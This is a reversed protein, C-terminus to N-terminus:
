RGIFFFVMDLLVLELLPLLLLGPRYFKSLITEKLAKDLNDSILILFPFKTHHFLFYCHQCLFYVLGKNKKENRCERGSSEEKRDKMKM